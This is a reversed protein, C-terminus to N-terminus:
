ASRRRRRDVVIAALAIVMALGFLLLKLPTVYAKLWLVHESGTLAMVQVAGEALDTPIVAVAPLAWLPRFARLALGAFLPGYTLPYAVDLTATMWAHVRKQTDTMGAIHRGIAEPDRMEDIITFDWIRMIVSFGITEFVVLAFLTWLTSPRTLFTAMVSYHWFDGNSSVLAAPFAM